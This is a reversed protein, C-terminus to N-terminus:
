SMQTFTFTKLVGSSYEDRIRSVCDVMYERTCDPFSDIFPNQFFRTVDLFNGSIELKAKHTNERTALEAEEFLFKESIPKM